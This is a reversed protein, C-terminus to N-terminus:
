AGRAVLTLREMASRLREGVDVGWVASLDEVNVGDLHVRRILYADAPALRAIATRLEEPPLQPWGDPFRRGSTTGTCSERDDELPRGAAPECRSPPDTMRQPQPPRTLERKLRHVARTLRTRTGPASRELEGVDAGTLVKRVLDSEEAPLLALAVRLRVRQRYEHPGTVNRRKERRLVAEEPNPRGDLYAGGFLLLPEHTSDRYNRRRCSMLVAGRIPFYAFARYPVGRGPDFAEVCRWHQIRAEQELDDVDFSPPLGRRVSRGISEAWPRHLEFLAECGGFDAVNRSEPAPPPAPVDASLDGTSTAPFLSEPICSPLTPLIIPAAV